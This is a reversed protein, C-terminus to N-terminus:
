FITMRVKGNDTIRHLWGRFTDGAKEKRFGAIHGALAGFVDQFVDASEHEPLDWRRLWRYVFPGYLGVLTEWASADDAKVRELLSRSTAGSSPPDRSPELEARRSPDHHQRCGSAGLHDSTVSDVIILPPGRSSHAWGREHLTTRFLGGRFFAARSTSGHLKQIARISGLQMSEDDALEGPGVERAYCAM